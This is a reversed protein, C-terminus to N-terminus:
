PDKMILYWIIEEDLQQQLFLLLYMNFVQHQEILAGVMKLWILNLSKEFIEFLKFNCGNHVPIIKLKLPNQTTM